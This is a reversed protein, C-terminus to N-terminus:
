MPCHIGSACLNLFFVNVRRGVQNSCRGAIGDMIYCFKVVLGYCIDNLRMESQVVGDYEYKWKSLTSVRYM